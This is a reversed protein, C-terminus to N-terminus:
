KFRRSKLNREEYVRKKMEEGEKDSLTGAFEMVNRKAKEMAIEVIIESFSRNAKLKKLADYANDSISIVKTM